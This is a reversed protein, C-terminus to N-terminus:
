IGVDHYGLLDQLKPPKRRLHGTVRVTALIVVPRAL